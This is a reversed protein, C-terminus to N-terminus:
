LDVEAIIERAHPCFGADATGEAHSSQWRVFAEIGRLQARKREVRESLPSGSELPALVRDSLGRLVEVFAAARRAAAEGQWLSVYEIWGLYAWGMAAVRLPDGSTSSTAPAHRAVISRTTRVPLGASRYRQALDRDEYYLFFEPRFGGISLFEARSCMLVAGAPWWAKRRVRIKPLVPLERPRLPGFAHGLVDIPWYNDRLLLPGASVGDGFLPGVLGFPEEALEVWVNAVNAELLEVDPNLFLVHSGSAAEAGQNCARGFGLNASNRVLTTGVTEECRIRTEDKSANDVVVIESDPLHRRVSELCDQIVRASNHTVVVASLTPGAIRGSELRASPM